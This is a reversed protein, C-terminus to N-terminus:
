RGIQFYIINLKFYMQDIDQNIWPHNSIDVTKIRKEPDVQLMSQILALAACSIGKVIQPDFTFQGKKVKEFIEKRSDADFPYSGLLMKYLIIGLAWVDM